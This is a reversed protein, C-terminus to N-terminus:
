NRQVSDIAERIGAEKEAESRKRNKALSALIAKEIATINEESVDTCVDAAEETSESQAALTLDELSKFSLCQVSETNAKQKSLTVSMKSKSKTFQRFKKFPTMKSIGSGDKGVAILISKELALVNEECVEESRAEAIPTRRHATDMARRIVAESESRLAAKRAAAASHMKETTYSYNFHNM